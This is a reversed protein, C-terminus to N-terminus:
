MGLIANVVTAGASSAAAAHGVIVADLTSAASAGEVGADYVLVDGQGIVDSATKKTLTYTGKLSVAGSETNAIDNVAIGCMKGMVVVQGAVIDSGTANTYVVVEGSNVQNKM